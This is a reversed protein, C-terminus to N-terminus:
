FAPYAQLAERAQQWRGQEDEDLDLDLDLWAVREPHNKKISEIYSRTYYGGELTASTELLEEYLAERASDEEPYTEAVLELAGVFVSPTASCCYTNVSDDFFGSLYVKGGCRALFDPEAYASIDILCAVFKPASKNEM